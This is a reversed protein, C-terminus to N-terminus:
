AGSGNDTVTPATPIIAEPPMTAIPSEVQITDSTNEPIVPTEPTTVPEITETTPATSQETPEPIITTEIIPAVVPEQIPPTAIEDLPVTPEATPLSVTSSTTMPSSTAGQDPSNNILIETVPETSTTVPAIIESSTVIELTTTPEIIVSSTKTALSDTTIQEPILAIYDDEGEEPVAPGFFAFADLLSNEEGPTPTPDVWNSSGDPIRAFSKGAPADESYVFSDILNAGNSIQGDFLRVSDGGVNDLAFSSSGNRYVVLFGGGPIVTLGTNTIAPTILLKHLDSEDYLAWGNVDVSSTSLNYLEIWEGGPKNANDAGIPNPLFENLVVTPTGPASCVVKSEATVPTGWDTQNSWYKASNTIISGCAAKTYDANNAVKLKLDIEILPDNPYVNGFNWEIVGTSINDYSLTRNVTYGIYELTSPYNDDIRVGGGTCVKTGYNDLTLHYTIIDGPAVETKNSTKTIRLACSNPPPPPECTCIRLSIAINISELLNKMVELETDPAAPIRRLLADAQAVITDMDDSSEPPVYADIHFNFINFKMALLQKKLKNLMISNSANFINNVKTQTNIMENTSTPQGNPLTTTAGLFVPLLPLYISSHTRWYGVSRVEFDECYPAQLTTTSIERDSFGTPFVLNNRTQQGLFDFNFECTQGQLNAPTTSSFYLSFGWANPDTFETLGYDFDKALGSYKLESSLSAELWVYDCVAGALEGAKAQYRFSNGLNTISITKKIPKGFAACTSTTSVQSSLSFDLTGATFTNDTSTELNSLFARTGSVGRLQLACMTFLLITACVRMLPRHSFGFAVPKVLFVSHKKARAKNLAKKIKKIKSKM